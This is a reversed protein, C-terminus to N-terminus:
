GMRLCEKLYLDMLWKLNELEMKREMRSSVLINMNVQEKMVMATQLIRKLSDKISIIRISLSEMEMLIIIKISDEIPLTERKLFKKDKETKLEQKLCEMISQIKLKYIDKVMSIDM